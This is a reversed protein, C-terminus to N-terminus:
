TRKAKNKLNQITGRCHRHSSLTVKILVNNSVLATTKRKTTLPCPTYYLAYPYDPVYHLKAFKVTCQQGNISYGAAM